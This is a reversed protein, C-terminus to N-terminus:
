PRGTAQETKTTDSTLYFLLPKKHLQRHPRPLNQSNRVLPQRLDQTSCLAKETGGDVLCGQQDGPEFPQAVERQDAEGDKQRWPEGEHDQCHADM